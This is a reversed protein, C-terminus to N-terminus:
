SLGQFIITPLNSEKKPIAINETAINFKWPTSKLILWDQFFFCMFLWWSNTSWCGIGRWFSWTPSAQLIKKGKKGDLFFGRAVLCLFFYVLKDDEWFAFFITDSWFWRSREFLTPVKLRQLQQAWSRSRGQGIVVRGTKVEDSATGCRQRRVRCEVPGATPQAGNGGWRSGDKTFSVCNKRDCTVWFLGPQHNFWGMQFIHKDFHIM